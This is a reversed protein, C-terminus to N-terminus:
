SLSAVTEACTRYRRPPTCRPPRRRGPGFATGRCSQHVPCAPTANAAAISADHHSTAIRGGHTWRRPGHECRCQSSRPPLCQHQSRQRRTRETLVAGIGLCAAAAFAPRARALDGHCAPRGYKDAGRACVTVVTLPGTGRGRGRSVRRAPAAAPRCRDRSRLLPAGPPGARCIHCRPERGPLLAILSFCV